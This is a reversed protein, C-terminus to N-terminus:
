RHHWYFVKSIEKIGSDHKMKGRQSSFKISLFLLWIVVNCAVGSGNTPVSVVVFIAEHVKGKCLFVFYPGFLEQSINHSERADWPRHFLIEEGFALRLFVNALVFILIGCMRLLSDCDKLSLYLRSARSCLPPTPPPYLISHSRPSRVGM